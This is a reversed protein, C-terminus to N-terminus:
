QPADPPPADPVVPGPAGPATSPAIDPIAVSPNLMGPTLTNVVYLPLPQRGIQVVAAGELAAQYEPVQDIEAQMFGLAMAKLYDYVLSPDANVLQNSLANSDAGEINIPDYLHSGGQILALYHDPAASQWTFPRIQELLAPAVPDSTGAVILSPIAIQAFGAKGFLSSTVPNLAMVAQIRDDRLNESFQDPDLLATCQLLMSPNAANFVFEDSDCNTQLTQFNLQAGSLALATYGGFSHGIIGVRSPDLRNALPGNAQNLRTLEDLLYSVDKPRDSFESPDSVEQAVGQFLDYLRQTNSGPHELAAVAYGYSTLHELVPLFGKRDGALGHSFVIIGAPPADTPLYLDTILTRDRESDVISLTQVTVAYPGPASLAELPTVGGSLLSPPQSQVRIAAIAQETDQILGTAANLLRFAQQSDIRVTGTPFKELVGLLSLGEPEAAALVLAGRIGKAGDRRGATQIVSGLSRLINEGIASYLFQSIQLHDVDQRVRLTQRFQSRQETSLYRLYSALERTPVGTDAYQRLADVTTSIEIFGYTLTVREAAAVPLAQALPLLLGLCFGSMLGAIRGKFSRSYNRSFFTMLMRPSNAAFRTLPGNMIKVAQTPTSLGSGSKALM